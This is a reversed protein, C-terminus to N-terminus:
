RRGGAARAGSAPRAAHARRDARPCRAVRPGRCRRHRPDITAIRAEAARTALDALAEPQTMWVGFGDNPPPPEGPLDLPELLAATRSGLTGDAFVQALGTAAPRASGRGRSAAASAPTSRTPSSSPGSARMSASALLATRPWARSLRGPRSRAVPGAVARGPRPARRPGPPPAPTGAARRGGPGHGPRGAPHARHRTAGRDRQARGGAVRRGPAPDRRRCSRGDGVDGRVRGAGRLEGVALSPRAGVPRGEPGARGTRPRHRDALRGVPRQGLRRGRAMRRRRATRRPRCPHAGPWRRADRADHLDVRTAALATEALHLHSDTMGPMAVEGDALECAGRRRGSWGMSTRGRGPSWSGRRRAGRGGRGLRVVPTARSPRSGARDGAARRRDTVAQVEPWAPDELLAALRGTAPGCGPGPGARDAGETRGPSGRADRGGAVWTAGGGPFAYGTTARGGGTLPDDAGGPTGDAM